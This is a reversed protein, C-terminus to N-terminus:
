GIIRNVASYGIIWSSWRSDPAPRNGTAAQPGQFAACHILELRAPNLRPAFWHLETMVARAHKGLGVDEQAGPQAQMNPPSRISDADHLM